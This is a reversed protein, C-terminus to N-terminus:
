DPRNGTAAPDAKGDTRAQAALALWKAAEAYDQPVGRGSAYMAGLAIKAQVHGSEASRQYWRAAAAFDVNTGTGAEYYSGLIFQAAVASPDGPTNAVQVLIPLAAAVDGRRILDEADQFPGALASGALLALLTALHMRLTM